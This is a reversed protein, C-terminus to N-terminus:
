VGLQKIEGANVYMIKGSIEIVQQRQDLEKILKRDGDMNAAYDRVIVANQRPDAAFMPLAQTAPSGNNTSSAPVSTKSLERLVS